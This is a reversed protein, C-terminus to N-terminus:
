GARDRPEHEARIALRARLEDVRRALDPSLEALAPLLQVPYVWALLPFADADLIGGRRWGVRREERAEIVGPGCETLHDANLRAVPEPLFSLGARYVEDRTFPLEEPDIYNGV